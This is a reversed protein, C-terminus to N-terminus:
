WFFFVVTTHKSKDLEMTNKSGWLIKHLFFGLSYREGCIIWYLNNLGWPGSRTSPAEWVTLMKAGPLINVASYLSWTETSEAKINWDSSLCFAGRDGYKSIVSWGTLRFCLLCIPFIFSIFSLSLLVYKSIHEYKYLGSINEIIYIYIYINRDKLIVSHVQLRNCNDLFIYMILNCNRIMMSTM